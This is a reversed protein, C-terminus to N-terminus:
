EDHVYETFCNACQLLPDGPNTLKPGVFGDRRAGGMVTSNSVLNGWFITKSEKLRCRQQIIQVLKRGGPGQSLSGLDQVVGANYARCQSRHSVSISRRQGPGGSSRDGQSHVYRPLAVPSVSRSTSALSRFALDARPAMFLVNEFILLDRGDSGM